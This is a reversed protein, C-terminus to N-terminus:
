FLLARIIVNAVTIAVAMIALHLTDEIEFGEILEDTVWLLGANIVLSFLGLTLLMLPLTLVALVWFLLMNAISYVVAVLLATGYSAVRVRPLTEALAFIVGGLLLMHVIWVIM